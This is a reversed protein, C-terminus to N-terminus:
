GCFTDGFVLNIERYEEDVVIERAKTRLFTKAGLM